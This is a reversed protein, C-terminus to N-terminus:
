RAEELKKTARDDEQQQAAEVKEKVMQPTVDRYPNKNEASPKSSSPSPCGLLPACLLLTLLRLNMRADYRLSTV